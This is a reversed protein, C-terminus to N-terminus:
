SARQWPRRGLRLRTLLTSNAAGESRPPPAVLRLGRPRARGAVRICADSIGSSNVNTPLFRVALGARRTSADNPPSAHMVLQHFVFFEGPQLSMAVPSGGIPPPPLARSAHLAADYRADRYVEPSLVSTHTGPVLQVANEPSVEDIAIWATVIGRDHLRNKPFNDQHWEFRRAGPEKIWFQSRWLLLDPGAVRSVEALVAPHTAIDFVLRSRRHANWVEEMDGDRQDVADPEVTFSVVSLDMPQRKAAFLDDIRPRLTAMEDPTFAPFPGAFGDRAYNAPGEGSM